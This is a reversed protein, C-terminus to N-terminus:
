QFFREVPTDLRESLLRLSTYNPLSRGNLWNSVQSQKIGLLDALQMQKFGREAMIKKIIIAFTKDKTINHM